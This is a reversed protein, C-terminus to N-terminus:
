RVEGERWIQKLVGILKQELHSDPVQLVEAQIDDKGAPKRKVMTRVTRSVKEESPEEYPTDTASTSPPEPLKFRRGGKLRPPFKKTTYGVRCCHENLDLTQMISGNLPENGPPQCRACLSHLYHRTLAQECTDATHVTVHLDDIPYHSASLLKEMRLCM